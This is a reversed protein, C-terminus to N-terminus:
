RQINVRIADSQASNGASDYAVAYVNHGPFHPGGLDWSTRRGGPSRLVFLGKTTGVLLLVDGDKVPVQRTAVM